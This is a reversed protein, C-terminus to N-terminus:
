DEMLGPQRQRPFNIKERGEEKREQKEENGGKEPKNM